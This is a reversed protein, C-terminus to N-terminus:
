RYRKKWEAWFHEEFVEQANDMVKGMVYRQSTSRLYNERVTEGEFQYNVHYQETGVKTISVSVARKNDDESSSKIGLEMYGHKVMSEQTKESWNYRWRMVTESCSGDCELEEDVRAYFVGDEIWGVTNFGSLFRYVSLAKANRMTIYNWYQREGKYMAHLHDLVVNGKGEVKRILKRYDSVKM